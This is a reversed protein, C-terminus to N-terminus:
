QDIIGSVPVSWLGMTTLYKSTIQTNPVRFRPQNEISSSVL